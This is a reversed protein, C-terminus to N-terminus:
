YQESKRSLNSVRIGEADAPKVPRFYANTSPRYGAFVMPQQLVNVVADARNRKHEHRRNRAQKKQAIELLYETATKGVGPHRNDVDEPDLGAVLPHEPPNIFLGKSDKPYEEWYPRNETIDINSLAAPARDPFARWFHQPADGEIKLPIWSRPAIEMNITKVAVVKDDIFM